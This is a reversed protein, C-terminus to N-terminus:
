IGLSQQKSKLLNVKIQSIASPIAKKFRFFGHTAYPYLAADWWHRAWYCNTGSLELSTILSKLSTETPGIPPQAIIIGDLSEVKIWDLVKAADQDIFLPMSKNMQNIMSDQHFKIVSPAMNHKKYADLPFYGAQAVSGAKKELWDIASLDELTILIGLRKGKPIIPFEELIIPSPHDVQEVEIAENALAVDVKFRNETYKIINDRRALYSKGQTHLGAVWRWSLTNSAPDGDFLNRLFWDAGLQWPLKLTHVWISAYWMRVHNHLYNNDILERNWIDFCDIGSLSEIAKTYKSHNSYSECLKTLDQQYAKWVPPRSQLWGKWYTRWLVEDIFKSATAASHEKLVADIVEWEPLTRNRIWPSIRSVTSNSIDERDYNRNAAYISGCKPIFSELSNRAAQKTPIFM